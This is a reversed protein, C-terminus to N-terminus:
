KNTNHRSKFPKKQKRQFKSPLLETWQHHMLYIQAEQPDGSVQKIHKATARSIEMKKALHRVKSAPFTNLDINSDNITKSVFEEDKLFFCFIDMYFRPLKM